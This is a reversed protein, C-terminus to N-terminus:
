RMTSGLVSHVLSQHIVRSARVAGFMYAIFASMYTIVVAVLM